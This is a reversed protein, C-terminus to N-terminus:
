QRLRGSSVRRSSVRRVAANRSLLKRVVLAGEHHRRLQHVRHRVGVGLEVGGAVDHVAHPRVDQEVRTGDRQDVRRVGASRQTAGTALSSHKRGYSFYIVLGIALWVALRLWNEWGLSFMMALNMLMGLIPVGAHVPTRFPRHLEPNTRRMVIVAACVVVFAMLTGINM